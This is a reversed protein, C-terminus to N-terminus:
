RILHKEFMNQKIRRTNRGLGFGQTALVKLLETIYIGTIQYSYHYYYRESGLFVVDIFDPGIRYTLVSSSNSSNAYSKWEANSEKSDLWNQFLNIEKLIEESSIDLTQRTKQQILYSNTSLDQIEAMLEEQIPTKKSNSKCITQHIIVINSIENVFFSVPRERTRYTEWGNLVSNEFTSLCRFM